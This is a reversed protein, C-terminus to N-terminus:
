HFTGRLEPLKPSAAIKKLREVEELFCFSDHLFERLLNRREKKKSLKMNEEGEGESEPAGVVREM